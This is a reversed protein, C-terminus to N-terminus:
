RRKVHKKIKRKKLTPKRRTTKKNATRRAEAYAIAKAQDPPYGENMLKAINYSISTPSDGSKLPM